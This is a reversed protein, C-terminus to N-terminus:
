VKVALILPQLEKLEALATILELIHGLSSPVEITPNIVTVDPDVNDAETITLSVSFPTATVVVLVSTVTLVCPNNDISTSPIIVM